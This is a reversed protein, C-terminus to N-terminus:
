KQAAISDIRASTSEVIKGLKQATEKLDSGPIQALLAKLEDAGEVLARSMQVAKSSEEAAAQPSPTNEPAAALQPAILKVLQAFTTMMAEMQRLMALKDPSPSSPSQPQAPTDTSM